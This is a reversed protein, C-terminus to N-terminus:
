SLLIVLVNPQALSEGFGPVDQHAWSSCPCVIQLALDELANDPSGGPCGGCCFLLWCICVRVQKKISFCVWSGVVVLKCFAGAFPCWLFVSVSFLQLVRQFVMLLCQNMGKCFCFCFSLLCGLSLSLSVCM